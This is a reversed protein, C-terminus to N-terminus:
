NATIRAKTIVSSWSARTSGLWDAAAGLTKHIPQYDAIRNLEAVRPAKMAEDLERALLQVVSDPTGAPAALVYAFSANFGPYGQEAVTPVDPAAASRQPGSIALAKLKGAKVQPWIGSTVAFLSDVQGGIVDVVSAGTGKYPVHVLDLGASALFAAMTLHSPSGNGGSAYSLNKSRALQVFDALTDAQISPGVGLMQSYTVPVGIIKFDKVPDFPMKEYLSPNVTFTTDLAFLLTYGDA